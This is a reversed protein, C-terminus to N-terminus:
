TIGSAATATGWKLGKRRFVGPSEVHQAPALSWASKGSCLGAALYRDTSRINEIIDFMSLLTSEHTVRCIEIHLNHKLMIYKFIFYNISFQSASVDPLRM